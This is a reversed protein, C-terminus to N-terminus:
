EKIRMRLIGIPKKKIGIHNLSKLTSTYRKNLNTLFNLHNKCLGFFMITVDKYIILFSDLKKKTSRPILRVFFPIKKLLTSCSNISIEKRKRNISRDIWFINSILMWELTTCFVLSLQKKKFINKSECLAPLNENHYTFKLWKM